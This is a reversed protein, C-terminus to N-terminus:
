FAKKIKDLIDTLENIVKEIKKILEEVNNNEKLKYKMFVNRITPHRIVYGSFLVDKDLGMYKTILNGLTDDEGDVSLEIIDEYVESNRIEIREHNTVLDHYFVDLRKKLLEIAMKVIENPPIQGVSEITMKYILPEGVKNKSYHREVDRTMFSRKEEVSMDKTFEEVEKKDIGYTHVCTCVPCHTSKGGEIVSNKELQCEFSVSQNYKLKAILMGPYPFIKSNEVKKGSSKDMVEFDSAYISLIDEEENKKSCSMKVNSYDIDKMFSNIPILSLRHAMFENDMNSTNETFMVSKEEIVWTSIDSLITRRISNVLATNVKTSENDLDFYLFNDKEQINKVYSM